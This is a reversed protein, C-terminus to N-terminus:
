IRTYELMNSYIWPIKLSYESFIYLIGLKHGTYYALGGAQGSTLRWVGLIVIRSQIFEKMFKWMQSWLFDKSILEITKDFGFHGVTPLDHCMQIIKFWIPESLIYLLGKYYILGDKFEFEDNVENIRLCERINIVFPDDTLAENVEKLYLIDKCSSM